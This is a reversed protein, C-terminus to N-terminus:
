ALPGDLPIVTRQVLGDALYFKELSLTSEAEAFCATIPGFFDTAVKGKCTPLYTRLVRPDYYRFFYQQGSESEVIFIERMHRFTDRVKGSSVFLVGVNKGLRQSWHLLFDSKIDVAIFYPAVEGMSEAAAGKFLMRNPQSLNRNTTAAFDFDVCGDVIAYLSEGERLAISNSITTALSSAFPPRM